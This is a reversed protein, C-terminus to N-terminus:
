YNRCMPSIRLNKSTKSSKFEKGAVGKIVTTKGAVVRSAANPAALGLGGAVCQKCPQKGSAGGKGRMQNTSFLDPSKVQNCSACLRGGM